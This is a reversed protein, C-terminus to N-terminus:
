EVRIRAHRPHFPSLCIRYSFPPRPIRVLPSQLYFSRARSEGQSTVIDFNPERLGCFCAPQNEHVVTGTDDFILSRLRVAITINKDRDTFYSPYTKKVDGVQSVPYFNISVMYFKNVSM